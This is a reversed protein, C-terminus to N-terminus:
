YSRFIRRKLIKRVFVLDEIQAEHPTLSSELRAVRGSRSVIVPKVTSQVPRVGNGSAVKAMVFVARAKANFSNDTATL